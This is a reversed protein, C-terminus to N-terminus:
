HTKIYEVMELETEFEHCVLEKVCEYRCSAILPEVEGRAGFIIPANQKDSEKYYALFEIKGMRGGVPM